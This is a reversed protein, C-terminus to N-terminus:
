PAHRCGLSRAGGSPQGLRAPPGADRAKNGHATRGTSQDPSGEGIVIRDAVDEMVGVATQRSRVLERREPGALLARKHQPRPQQGGVAKHEPHAVAHIHPEGGVGGGDKGADLHEEKQQQVEGCGRKRDLGAGERLVAEAQVRQQLIGLHHDVRRHEIEPIESKRHRERKREARQHHAVGALFPDVDRAAPRHHGPQEEGAPDKEARVPGVAHQSPSSVPAPVRNFVRAQHGPERAGGKEVRDHHLLLPPHHLAPVHPEDEGGKHKRDQARQEGAGPQDTGHM